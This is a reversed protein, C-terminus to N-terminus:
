RRKWALFVVFSMFPNPESKGKIYRKRGHGRKGVNVKKTTKISVFDGKNGGRERVVGNNEEEVFGM